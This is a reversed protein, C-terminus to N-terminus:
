DINRQLWKLISRILSIRHTVTEYTHGAGPMMMFDCPPIVKLKFNEFGQVFIPQDASGQIIFKPMELKSLAKQVDYQLADHWFTNKLLWGKYEYTDLQDKVKTFNEDKANFVTKMDPVTSLAILADAQNHELTLIATAAGMSIGLIIIRNFGQERVWKLADVLNAINHSISSDAFDGASDGSGFFDFRLCAYGEKCCARAIDVFLRRSEIKNGTFGHCMIIIKNTTKSPRHIIGIIQQGESHFTIPTEIIDAAM